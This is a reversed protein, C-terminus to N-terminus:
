DIIDKVQDEISETLATICDDQSEMVDGIVKIPMVVIKIPATILRGLLEGFM